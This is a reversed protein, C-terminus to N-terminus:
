KNSPKPKTLVYCKLEEEYDDLKIYKKINSIYQEIVVLYDSEKIIRIEPNITKYKFDLDILIPGQKRHREALYVPHKDEIIVKSYLQYFKSQDKDTINYCGKPNGLSVHTYIDDIGSREIRSKNLLELFKSYHSTM